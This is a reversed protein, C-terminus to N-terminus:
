NFNNQKASLEFLTNGHLLSGDAFINETLSLVTLLVVATDPVRVDQAPDLGRQPGGNEDDGGPIPGVAFVEDLQPIGVAGARHPYLKETFIINLGSNMEVGMGHHLIGIGFIVM